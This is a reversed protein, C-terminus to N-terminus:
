RRESQFSGAGEELKSAVFPRHGTFLQYLVVGLSYMDSYHGLPERKIQEPSMYYPSGLTTGFATLKPGTEMQLKVSGFDLIRIQDGEPSEVLFINDPKLDRHIVGFSHADDLGLAIQALIRLGRAAPVSGDKRLLAGLELGELYEMTLYFSKDPTEGFDIVRVVYPSDIGQATEFERKFREVAVKDKAVDPHLVKIAVRQKSQVHRGEYVRGMAGDAVHAAVVYEGFRLGLRPDPLQGDPPVQVVITGDLGCFSTDDPYETGCQPCRRSM